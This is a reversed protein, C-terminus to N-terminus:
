EVILTAKMNAHGSGCPINCHIEYTGPENITVTQPKKQTVKINLNSIEIGHTGSTNKLSIKVPEGKKVRYEKQDFEYNKASIVIAQGATDEAASSNNAQEGAKNGCAALVLMMAIIASFFFLKKNM